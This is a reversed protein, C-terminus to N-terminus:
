HLHLYESAFVVLLSVAVVFLVMERTVFRLYAIIAIAAICGAVISLPITLLERGIFGFDIGEAPALLVGGIAIVVAALVIIVIDKLVTVSMVQETLPGKSSTEV